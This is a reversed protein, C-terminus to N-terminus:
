SPQGIQKPIDQGPEDQSLQGGVWPHVEEPERRGAAAARMQDYMAAPALMGPVDSLLLRVPFTRRAAINAPLVIETDGHTHLITMLVAGAVARAYIPEMESVRVVGGPSIWDLYVDLEAATALTHRLRDEGAAIEVDLTKKRVALEDVERAALDRGQRIASVQTQMDRIEQRLKDWAGEAEALYKVLGGLRQLHPTLEYTNLGAARFFRVMSVVDDKTLGEAMCEAVWDRIQAALKTQQTIVIETADLEAQRQEIQGEYAKLEAERQSFDPLKRKAAELDERMTWAAERDALFENWKDIWATVAEGYSYGNRECFDAFRAADESSLRLLIQKRDDKQTKAADTSVKPKEAAM